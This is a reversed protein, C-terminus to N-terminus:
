SMPKNRRAMAVDRLEKMYYEVEDGRLFVHVTRGKMSPPDSIVCEITIGENDPLWGPWKIEGTPLGDTGIDDWNMWRKPVANM